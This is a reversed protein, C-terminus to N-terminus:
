GARRTSTRRGVCVLVTSVAAGLIIVLVVVVAADNIGLMLGRTQLAQLQQSTVDTQASSAGAAAGVAANWGKEWLLNVSHVTQRVTAAYTVLPGSAALLVYPLFTMLALARATLSKPVSLVGLLIAPAVSLGAGAGLLATMQLVSGDGTHETAWMLQWGAIALLLM